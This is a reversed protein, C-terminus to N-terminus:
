KRLQIRTHNNFKDTGINNRQFSTPIHTVIKEVKSINPFPQTHTVSSVIVPANYLDSKSSPVYFGQEAGHQLRRHQNRLSTEVDVNNLYGLPPCKSTSSNFNLNVHHVLAPKIPVEAPRRHNVMPLLTQRTPTARPSFNPSLWYDCALRSQMRGNLEDVRDHQGYMVGEHVGYLKDFSTEINSM